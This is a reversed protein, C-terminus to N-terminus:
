PSVRQTLRSASSSSATKCDCIRLDGTFLSRNTNVSSFVRVSFTDWINTWSSFGSNTVITTLDHVTTVSGNTVVFPTPFDSWQNYEVQRNIVTTGLDALSIGPGTTLLSHKIFAPFLVSPVDTESSLSFINTDGKLYQKAWKYGNNYNAPLYDYVNLGETVETNKIWPFLHVWQGNVYVAVWPYNVSILTNTTYLNGNTDVAGHIQMRLIASLRADLMQVGDTPGYIFVAPVGARRMLYVLLACQETPSGQGEMYTGLASRNIGGLNVSTDFPTNTNNNYAVADTLEVQNFVYSALALANSGM